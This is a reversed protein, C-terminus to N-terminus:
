RAFASAHLERLLRLDSRFTIEHQHFQRHVPERSMYELTDHMWGMDWKLGFGLGGLLDPTLGHAM